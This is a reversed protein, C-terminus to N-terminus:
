KVFVYVDVVVRDEPSALADGDYQELITKAEVGRKALEDDIRGYVEELDDLPGNHRFRLAKGGPSQGAKVGKPLKGKPPASVPLMARFGVDDSDSEIYEVLPAGPEAIGLKKAAQALTAFVSGLKEEAQDWTTVGTVFLVPRPTMEVEETTPGTETAEPAPAPAPAAPPEALPVVRQAPAPAPGPAPTATPAEPKPVAAPPAVPTAAPPEAPAAAPPATPAPAAPAPASAAPDAPAPADPKPEAPKAESEAPASVPPETPKPASSAQTKPTEPVFVPSPAIPAPVAVPPPGPPVVMPAPVVPPQTVMPPGSVQPVLVPAPAVPQTGIPPQREIALTPAGATQAVAAGAVALMALGSAASTLGMRLDFRM